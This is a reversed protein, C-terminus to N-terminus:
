PTDEASAEKVICLTNGTGDKTINAQKYPAFTGSTKYGNVSLNVVVKGDAISFSLSISNEDGFYDYPLKNDTGSFLIAKGNSYITADCTGDTGVAISGKANRIENKIIALSNNAIDKSLNLKRQVGYSQLVPQMGTAVFVMIIGLVAIAMILEVLTMGKKKM